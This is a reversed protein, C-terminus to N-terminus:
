HIQAANQVGSDTSKEDIFYLTDPQQWNFVYFRKCHARELGM